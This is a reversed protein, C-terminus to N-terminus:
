RHSTQYSDRYNMAVYQPYNSLLARSFNDALVGSLDLPRGGGLKKQQIKKATIVELYSKLILLSLHHMCVRTLQLTYSPTCTRSM